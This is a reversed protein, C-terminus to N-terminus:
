EFNGSCTLTRVRAFLPIGDNKPVVAIGEAGGLPLCFDVPPMAIRSPVNSVGSRM